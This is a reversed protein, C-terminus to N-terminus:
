SAHFRDMFTSFREYYERVLRGARFVSSDARADLDLMIRGIKAKWDGQFLDRLSV